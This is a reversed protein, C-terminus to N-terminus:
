TQTTQLIHDDIAGTAVPPQRRDLISRNFFPILGDRQIDIAPAHHHLALSGRTVNNAYFLATSTNGLPMSTANHYAQKRLTHEGNRSPMPSVGYWGNHRPWRSDSHPCNPFHM